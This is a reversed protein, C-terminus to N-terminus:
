VTQHCVGCRQWSAGYRSVTQTTPHTCNDLVKQLIRQGFGKDRYAAEDRDGYNVRDIVSTTLYMLGTFASQGTITQGDGMNIQYWVEQYDPDDTEYIGQMIELLWEVQGKSLTLTLEDM